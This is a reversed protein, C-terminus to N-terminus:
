GRKALKGIAKKGKVKVIKVVGRKKGSKSVVYFLDGRKLTEGERDILIKRGKVKLVKAAEASSFLIVFVLISLLYIPLRFSM